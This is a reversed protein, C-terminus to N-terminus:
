HVQMITVAEADNPVVRLTAQFTQPSDTTSSTFWEPDHRLECRDGISKKMSLVMGSEDNSTYFHDAITVGDFTGSAITSPSTSPCQLRCESLVQHFHPLDFPHAGDSIPVCLSVSFFFLLRQTM